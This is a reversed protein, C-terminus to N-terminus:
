QDYRKFELKAATSALGVAANYRAKLAAKYSDIDTADAVSPHSFMELLGEAVLDCSAATLTDGARAFRGAMNEVRTLMLARQAMWKVKEAEKMQAFTPLVPGPDVPEPEFVWAGEAYRAVMGHPLDPPAIDVAGGPILFVGPELPSEEATTPGTFYGESNLQSVTKEM